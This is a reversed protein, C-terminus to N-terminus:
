SEPSSFAAILQDLAEMVSHYGGGALYMAASDLYVVQGKRAATTGAILPNDLTAAAAQGGQGIAAGRDIVLLWDPNVDAVFEFSVAEGHNEATLGPRAEPLDLAGHVWGFRSAAGYASIKGGNTMLILANGKGHASARAQAIRDDLEAKLAEARDARDFIAGYAALRSEAEAILDRGTITMDLTPAIASLPRVQMQSRGGAIILQPAMAAISEFDPEFLTGIKPATMAGALYAPPPIDPIADVEVGLADLTDIAALDLVVVPEPSQAVTAPGSATEVSVEGAAAPTAAALPMALALMCVVAKM